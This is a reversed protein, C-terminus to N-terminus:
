RAAPAPIPWSHDFLFCGPRFFVSTIHPLMVGPAHGTFDVRLLDPRQFAAWTGYSEANDCVIAGDPSLAALAVEALDSRFLGDIVVVDFREGDDALRRRIVDVGTAADRDVVRHLAVNGPVMPQLRQFWPGDEEFAVVRRARAAWWLTSQGAGFELVARGDFSRNALFDIAPYTYWPLASGSSSVARGKLSSQFHGTRMSFWAPTLLATGVARAPQWVWPPTRRRFSAFARHVITM